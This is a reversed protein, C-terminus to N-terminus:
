LFEKTLTAEFEPGGDSALEEPIGYTALPHCLNNVLGNAGDFSREIIPWNSYCDVYILYTSGKYSFFDACICQFPYVTPTPLTPPASPQSPAMHSCHNCQQHTACIAPTIGPWFVSSEAHSAHFHHQTSFPPCTLCGKESFPSSYGIRTPTIGDIFSLHARFQHYSLLFSIASNLCAQSSSPYFPLWIRM